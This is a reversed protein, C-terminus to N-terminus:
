NNSISGTAKIEEELKILADLSLNVDDSLDHKDDKFNANCDIDRFGKTHFNKFGHMVSDVNRIQQKVIGSKNGLFVARDKLTRLDVEMNDYYDQFNKINQDHATDATCLARSLKIFFLNFDSKMKTATADITENYGTILTVKCGELFLVAMLLFSIM